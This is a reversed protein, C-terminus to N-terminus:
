ALRRIVKEIRVIQPAILGDAFSQQDVVRNAALQIYAHRLSAVAFTLERAFEVSPKIHFQDGPGPDTKGIPQQWNEGLRDLPDDDPDPVM